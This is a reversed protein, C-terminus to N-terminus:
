NKTNIQSHLKEHKNKLNLRIWAGMKIGHPTIKTLYHMVKKPGLKRM